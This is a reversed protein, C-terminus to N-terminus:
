KIDDNITTLERQLIKRLRSEEEKALAQDVQEMIGSIKKIM